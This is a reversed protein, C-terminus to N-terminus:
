HITIVNNQETYKLNLATSILTAIMQPSDNSFSVTLRRENFESTTQLKQTYPLRNVVRLINGLTEDKFRISRQLREFQANDKTQLLHLGNLDATVTSGSDVLVEESTAIDKVRVRGRNVSLKFPKGDSSNVNFATGLVEILVGKAKILFPRHQLHTVDFYANGELTVERKDSEFHTPYKLASSGALYVISGDELTKVLAATEDNNYVTQLQVKADHGAFYLASLAVFVMVCAAAVISWKNRPLITTHRRHAQPKTLGDQELRAYMRSWAADTRKTYLDKNM